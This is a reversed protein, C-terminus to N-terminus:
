KLLYKEVTDLTWESEIKPNSMIRDYAADLERSSWDGEAIKVAAKKHRVLVASLRGETKMSEWLEKRALYWGLIRLYRKPSVRWTRYTNEPSYPLPIVRDLKKGPIPEKEIKYSQSIGIESIYTPQTLVPNLEAEDSHVGEGDDSQHGGTM